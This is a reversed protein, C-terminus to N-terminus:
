RKLGARGAALMVRMSWTCLAGRRKRCNRREPHPRAPPSGAAGHRHMVSEGPRGAEDERLETEGVDTETEM